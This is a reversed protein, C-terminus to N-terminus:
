GELRFDYKVITTINGWVSFPGRKAYFMQNSDKASILWLIFFLFIGYQQFMELNWYFSQQFLCLADINNPNGINEVNPM